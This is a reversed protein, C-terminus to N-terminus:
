PRLDFRFGRYRNHGVMVQYVASSAGEVLDLMRDTKQEDYSCSCRAFREETACCLSLWQAALGAELLMIRYARPGWRAFGENLDVSLYWVLSHTLMNVTDQFLYSDQLLHAVPGTWVPTSVAQDPEFRYAGQPLGEVRIPTMHIAVAPRASGAPTLDSAYPHLALQMAEESWARPVPRPDPTLGYPGYGSNRGYLLAELPLAALDGSPPAPPEPVPTTHAEQLSTLRVARAVEVMWATQRTQTMGQSSRWRGQLPDLPPLPVAEPHDRDNAAERELIVAAVVDEEDPPLGLLEQLLHDIFQYRIHPRWGLASATLLLNGALHGAELNCLRYAFDGYLYGVRWYELGLLLVMETAAPDLRTGLAAELWARGGPRILALAHEAPLYHYVGEPGAPGEPLWCYLESPYLCRPSPVARHNNYAHFVERRIPALNYALLAALRSLFPADVQRVAGTLGQFAEGLSGLAPFEQPLPLVPAGEMRKFIVVPPRQEVDVFLGTDIKAYSKGLAFSRVLAEKSM